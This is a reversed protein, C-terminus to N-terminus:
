AKGDFNNENVNNVIDNAIENTEKAINNTKDAIAANEQTFEDLQNIADSIQSMGLNQEKAANTVDDILNSTNTIKEELVSFGEIMSTSIKKGENTKLTANEVLDKIEKAAEASRSALNRVEQAVVAFGKGAEGATAAEVAANLSLINTQFAIQDIVTIAENINLVTENIDEMANVTKSALEKGKCASEQTQASINFMEQAKENTQKINGTIEEISAATQELSAAQSTANTNLIQVNSSLESSKDQLSVGDEQNDQLIKTIMKNMNIIDTGIKGSNAADIKKTFNRNAYEELVNSLANINTGVLKQVNDLMNNLLSKLEELSENKTSNHIRKDLYGNGVHSVIEKVDNILLNDQELISRTKSINENILSTMKGIEDNSEIKLLDINSQEKNVYKFFDLLGGQFKQLPKIIIKNMIFIVLFSLLLVIVVISIISTKIANNISEKTNTKMKAAAAEINTVYTGTGIIFDWPEFKQVYSIKEFEGEKGPLSWYYRVIGGEEKANATKVIKQFLFTGKKDKVDYVNKGDLSAKTGHMLVIHNSDNIWFYGAKGYRMNKIAQLAEKKMKESVDEVYAGTGVIWNYPKFMKLYSVKKQPKDFGPKAWLYEVIGEAKESKAHKILEKIIFVGNSDKIHLLNKGQLEPKPPLVVNTGETDYVFFYGSNNTGFKTSTIISKLYDQMQTQSLTNKNKEYEGELISFMYNTQEKLYGAVEDKIKDPATRAYYSEVTKYALSVYNKVEEEKGKYAAEESDKIIIEAEHKMAYITEIEMIISITLIAGIVTVLLKLKISIDKFM